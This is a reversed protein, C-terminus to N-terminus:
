RGPGNDDLRLLERLNDIAVRQRTAPTLQRLFSQVGRIRAADIKASRNTADTGVLFRNPMSEVLALWEPWVDRGNRLITYDPSRPHRVWTRASLEYVLNPHRQLMRRAVFLPTYGGHAWIVTVDSFRELLAAFEALRTWEIHLLVPVRHKRAAALIGTMTAGTPSFDTEDFGPSPFHVANIEGIGRFRGSSLLADLEQLLAPDDSRWMEGYRSREPSVSVFPVFLEPHRQAAAAISENDSRLGWFVVAARVCHRAMLGAHMAPDNLHVHADIFPVAYPGCDAPQAIAGTAALAAALLAPLLHRTTPLRM